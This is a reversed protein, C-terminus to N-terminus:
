DDLDEILGNSLWGGDIYFDQGTIYSSADSALFISTGVLDNPEGWRGLFNHKERNIRSNQNSFSKLTMNTKIYGPGINNARVNYKGFYKAYYKTLMKLGSKSAIYAPNNPFAREAALSTINIISGSKLKEFETKLNEIWLFPATLNVELTKNWKELPYFGDVPLTIGANNILILKKYKIEEIIKKVKELISKDLIDGEIKNIGSKYETFSIDVGIVHSGAQDLGLAIAKGNGSGAGTVISVSEKLSFIEDLM